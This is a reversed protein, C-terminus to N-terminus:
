LEGESNILHAFCSLDWFDLVAEPDALDLRKCNRVRDLDTNNLDKIMIGLENLMKMVNETSGAM